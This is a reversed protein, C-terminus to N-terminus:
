GEGNSSRGRIEDAKERAYCALSILISAVFAGLLNTTLHLEGAEIHVAEAPSVTLQDLGLLTIMSSFFATTGVWFPKGPTIRIDVM